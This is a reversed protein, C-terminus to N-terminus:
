AQDLVPPLPALEALGSRMFVKRALGTLPLNEVEYLKFWRASESAVTLRELDAEDVSRIRVYYNVQMIAHRLAMQVLPGSIEPDRLPPLEWMGPMVTQDQSRQHLLVERVPPGNYGSPCNRISLAYAAVQSRMRARAPTPHEGRTHCQRRLPCILCTPTRPLCVTAGLEMMAQNFDGPRNSDLLKNALKETRRILEGQGVRADSGWGALRQVVREVNGDVVAVPEGYAISAIAASTYAGVGPLARLEAAVGPMVGKYDFAVTKAAKHLMRARRYYGLGSWLTLVDAEAAHALSEVTPFNRLFAEYRGLVAAVRTQQLMIESVWIAYPDRTRRWPLDRRHLEYWALLRARMEGISSPQFQIESERKKNGTQNSDPVESSQM